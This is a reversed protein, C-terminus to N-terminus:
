KLVWAGVVIFNYNGGAADELSVGEGDALLDITTDPVGPGTTTQDFHISANDPNALKFKGFKVEEAVGAALTASFKKLIGHFGAGVPQDDIQENDVFAM